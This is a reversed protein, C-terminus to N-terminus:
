AAGELFEAFCGGLTEVHPAPMIEPEPLVRMAARRARWHDAGSYVHGHRRRDEANETATGWRLNELRNNARDADAHLSEHDASPREGRFARLVLEHVYFNKRTRGGGRLCVTRYGTPQGKRDRRDFSVLDRGESVIISRTGRLMGPGECGRPKQRWFSLVRGQDTVAYGPWGPVPM